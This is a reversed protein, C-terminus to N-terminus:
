GKAKIGLAEILDKRIALVLACTARLEEELDESLPLAGDMAADAIKNLNAAIGSQGLAGLIRAAMDTKISLSSNKNTDGQLAAHRVYTSVSDKGALLKLKAKESSTVRFSVPHLTEKTKSAPGKPQSAQNYNASINASAPPIM